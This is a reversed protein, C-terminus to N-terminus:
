RLAPPPFLSYSSRSARPSTLSSTSSTSRMRRKVTGQAVLQPMPISTDVPIPSTDSGSGERFAPHLPLPVEPVEEETMARSIISKLAVEKALKSNRQRQEATAVTSPVPVVTAGSTDSVSIHDALKEVISDVKERSTRSPVLEPLSGVSPNRQRRQQAASFAQSHRFSEQSSSKSIQSRSSRPSNSITSGAVRDFIWPFHHDSQVFDGSFIQNYLDDQITAQPSYENPMVLPSANTPKPWQKSDTRCNPPLEPGNPNSPTVAEQISSFSSEASTASPPDLNPLFTQLPLLAPQSSQSYNSSSRSHSVILDPKTSIVSEEAEKSSTELNPDAHDIPSNVAIAPTDDRTGPSPIYDWDFDCDAEAEIKYCYDVVDEWSEEIRTSVRRTIQPRVPIDENHEEVHPPALSLSITSHRVASGSGDESPQPLVGSWRQPSMKSSPFSKVHRLTPTPSRALTNISSRRGDSTEDEEPVGTLETKVMSFPLPRLSLASGDPTTVAHPLSFDHAGDQFTAIPYESPQSEPGSIQPILTTGSPQEHHFTFFDPPFSRSSSRPPPSTPSTPSTQGPSPQPSRRPPSPQSFSEISRSPHHISRTPSTANYQCNTWRDQPRAPSRPPSQGYGTQPPSPTDSGFAEACVPERQLDKFELTKIGQLERRPRQAARIASFESVLDNHSTEEIRKVHHPTTHTLHQFNFPESINYRPTGDAEYTLLVFM